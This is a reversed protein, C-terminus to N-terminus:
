RNKDVKSLSVAGAVENFYCGRTGTRAYKHMFEFSGNVYVNDWQYYDAKVM